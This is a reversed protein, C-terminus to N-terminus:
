EHLLLRNRWNISKIVTSLLHSSLITKQSSNLIDKNVNVFTNQVSDRRRPHRPHSSSFVSLKGRSLAGIVRARGEMTGLRRRLWVSKHFDIRRRSTEMIPEMGELWDQGQSWPELCSWVSQNERPWLRSFCYLDPKQVCLQCDTQM